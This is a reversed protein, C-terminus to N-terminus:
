IPPRPISHRKGCPDDGTMGERGGMMKARQGKTEERDKRERDTKM